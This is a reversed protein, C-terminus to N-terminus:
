TKDRSDDDNSNKEKKSTAMSESIYRNAAEMTTLMKSEAVNEEDRIGQRTDIGEAELKNNEEVEEYESDEEVIDDLAHPRHGLFLSESSARSSSDSDLSFIDYTHGADNEGKRKMRDRELARALNIASLEDPSKDQYEKLLAFLAKRRNRFKRLGPLLSYRWNIGKIRPNAGHELLLKVTTLQATEYGVPYLDRLAIFRAWEWAAATRPMIM